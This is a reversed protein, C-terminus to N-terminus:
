RDVDTSGNTSFSVLSLSMVSYCGVISLSLWRRTTKNQRYISLICMFGKVGGLGRVMLRALDRIFVNSHRPTSVGTLKNDSSVPNLAM